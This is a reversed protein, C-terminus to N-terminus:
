DPSSASLSDYLVDRAGRIQGLIGRQMVWKTTKPLGETTGLLKLFDPLHEREDRLQPRAEAYRPCFILIHKATQRGRGCYSFHSPLSPVKAQYLFAVLGNVRM